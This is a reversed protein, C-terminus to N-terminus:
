FQVNIMHKYSTLTPVKYKSNIFADYIAEGSDAFNCMQNCSEGADLSKASAVEGM